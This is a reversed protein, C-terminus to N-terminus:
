LVSHSMVSVFGVMTFTLNVAVNLCAQQTGETTTNKKKKENSFNLSLWPSMLSLYMVGHPSCTCVICMCFLYCGFVVYLSIYIPLIPTRTYTPTRTHMHILPLYNPIKYVYLVAYISSVIFTILYIFYFTYIHSLLFLFFLSFIFLYYYDAVRYPM